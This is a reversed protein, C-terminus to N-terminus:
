GLTLHAPVSLVAIASILFASFDFISSVSFNYFGPLTPQAWWKWKFDERVGEGKDEGGDERTYVRGRRDGHAGLAQGVSM